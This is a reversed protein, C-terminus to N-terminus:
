MEKKTKNEGWIWKAVAWALLVFLGVTILAIVLTFNPDVAYGLSNVLLLITALFFLILAVVLFLRTNM